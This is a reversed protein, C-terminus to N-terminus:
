DLVVDKKALVEETEFLNCDRGGSPNELGVRRKVTGIANTIFNRSNPFSVRLLSERLSM